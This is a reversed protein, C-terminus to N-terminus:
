TELVFGDGANLCLIGKDAFDVQAVPLPKGNIMSVVNTQDLFLFGTLYCM